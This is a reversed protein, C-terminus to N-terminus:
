LSRLDVAFHSVASGEGSPLFLEESGMKDSAAAEFIKVNNLLNAEVHFRLRKAAGPDPEFAIIKCNPFFVM